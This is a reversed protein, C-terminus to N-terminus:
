LPVFKTPALRWKWARRSRISSSASAIRSNADFLPHSNANVGGRAGCMPPNHSAPTLVALFRSRRATPLASRLASSSAVTSTPISASLSPFASVGPCRSVPPGSSAVGASRVGSWSPRLQKRRHRSTEDNLCINQRRHDQSYTRPRCIRPLHCWCCGFMLSPSRTTTASSLRGGWCHSRPLITALCAPSSPMTLTTSTLVLPPPTKRRAM